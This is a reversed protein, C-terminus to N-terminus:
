IKEFPLEEIGKHFLQDERITEGNFTMMLNLITFLIGPGTFFISLGFQM